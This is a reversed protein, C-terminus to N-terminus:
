AFRNFFPFNLMEGFTMLVIGVWLFAVHPFLVLVAFSSAILLVSSRLIGHLGFGRVECYKVLPMELLFILLGNAGLLIGIHKESLGHVENYFLPVSSFYQLFAIGILTTILLS